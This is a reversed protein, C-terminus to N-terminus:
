EANGSEEGGLIWDSITGTLELGGPTGVVTSSLTLPTKKDANFNTLMTTLDSDLTQDAPNGDTFLITATLKQEAGTVGLLRVTASWKGDNGKTFTLPADSPSGHTDKDIDLTGAVGSLNATITEIRDTSGGEPTIVLTLQRVQQKMPVTFVYDKDAAVTEALKGTFLWGIPISAYTATATTGSISIGEAENFLYAICNGSDMDPFTHSEPATPIDAHEAGNVVATYKAPKTLNPDMDMWDATLTVRAKDPHATEYIPDKVDCATLLVAAGIVTIMSKQTRM